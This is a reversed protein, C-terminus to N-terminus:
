VSVREFLLDTINDIRFLFLEVVEVRFQNDMSPIRKTMTQALVKIPVVSRAFQSISFVRVTM